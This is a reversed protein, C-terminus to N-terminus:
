KNNEVPASSQASELKRLFEDRKKSDNLIAVFEEYGKRVEEDSLSVIKSTLIPVVMSELLNRRGKAWRLAGKAAKEDWAENPSFITGDSFVDSYLTADRGQILLRVQRDLNKFYEPSPDQLMFTEFADITRTKEAHSFIRKWFKRWRVVGLAIDMAAGLCEICKGFEEGATYCLFITRAWHGNKYLLEAEEILARANEVSKSCLAIM